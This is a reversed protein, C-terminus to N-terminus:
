HLPLLGNQHPECVILETGEFAASSLRYKRFTTTTGM